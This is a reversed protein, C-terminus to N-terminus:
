QSRKTYAIIFRSLNKVVYDLLEQRICLRLRQKVYWRFRQLFLVGLLQFLTLKVKVYIFKPNVCLALNSPLTWPTTTWAVMVAGDADELLPFSIMISPDSVDQLLVSNAVLLFQKANFWVLTSTFCMVVKYNLGTEFNALPTNCGISYPM